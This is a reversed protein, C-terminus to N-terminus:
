LFYLPPSQDENMSQSGVVKDPEISNKYSCKRGRVGDGCKMM